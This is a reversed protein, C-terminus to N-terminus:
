AEATTDTSPTLSSQYQSWLYKKNKRMWQTLLDQQDGTKGSIASLGQNYVDPVNTQLWSSLPDLQTSKTSLTDTTGPTTTPPAPINPSSPPVPGMPNQSLINGVNAANLAGATGGATGAARNSGMQFAPSNLLDMMSPQVMPAAPQVKTAPNSLLSGVIANMTNFGPQLNPPIKPAAVQQTVTSKGGGGGTPM